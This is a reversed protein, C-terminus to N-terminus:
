CWKIFARSWGAVSFFSFEVDATTASFFFFNAQEYNFLPSNLCDVNVFICLTWKLASQKLQVDTRPDIFLSKTVFLSYKQRISWWTLLSLYSQSWKSVIKCIGIIFIVFEQENVKSNWDDMMMHFRFLDSFEKLIYIVLNTVCTFYDHM